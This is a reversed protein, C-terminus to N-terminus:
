KAHSRHSLLQLYSLQFSKAEAEQLSYGQRRAAIIQEDTAHVPSPIIDALSPRVAHRQRKPIETSTARISDKIEDVFSTSGLFLGAQLDKWPSEKGIGSLIFERYLQM